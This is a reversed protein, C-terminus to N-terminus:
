RTVLRAWQEFPLRESVLSNVPAEPDALGIGMGCFLMESEPAEVFDAVAQSRTAWAEQPCTALGAETALLMFTQLFM